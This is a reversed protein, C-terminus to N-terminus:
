KGLVLWRLRGLFPRAILAGVSLLAERQANLQAAHQNIVEGQENIADLSKSVVQRTKRLSVPHNLMGGM